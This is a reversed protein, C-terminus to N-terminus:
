DDLVVIQEGPSVRAVAEAIKPVLREVDRLRNTTVVVIGIGYSALDHERPLLRDSTLLVDFRDRAAELLESNRRGKWGMFAATRVDCAELWRHLQVPLCEDVLVRRM